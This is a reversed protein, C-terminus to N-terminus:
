LELVALRDVLFSYEFTFSFEMEKTIEKEDLQGSEDITRVKYCLLSPCM